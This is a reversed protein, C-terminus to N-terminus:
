FDGQHLPHVTLEDIVVSGPQRLVDLVVNALTAPSLSWAEDRSGEEGGNFYTDIIGPNIASVKIGKDKFERLLSHSFGLVAHKAAVYPAMNALPRKALDSGINIIHGAGAACMIPLVNYCHYLIGKLNVDICQDLEAISHELFPKYTGLGANNILYDIHGFQMKVHQVFQEVSHQDAVDYSQAIVDAGAARLEAATQQLSEDNRACIAIRCGQNALALAIHRGLGRSAGTIFAVKQEFDHKHM